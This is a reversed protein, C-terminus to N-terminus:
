QVPPPRRLRSTAADIVLSWASYLVSGLLADRWHDVQFGGLLHSALVFMCANIVFLFLGFSLVTLPLTILIALPRVFVNLLGIVLSTWLAATFDRLEIGPVWQSILLLAASLLLWRILWIM